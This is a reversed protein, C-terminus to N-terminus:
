KESREKAVQDFMAQYENLIATLYDVELQAEDQQAALASLQDGVRELQREMYTQRRSLETLENLNARSGLYELRAETAKLQVSRADIEGLLAQSAKARTSELESRNMAMKQMAELMRMEAERLEGQAVNGRETLVKMRQMEEELKKVIAEQYKLVEERRARENSDQGAAERKELEAKYAELEARLNQKQEDLRSLQVQMDRLDDIKTVGKSVLVQDLEDLEARLMLEQDSLRKIGKSITDQRITLKKLEWGLPDILRSKVTSQDRIAPIDSPTMVGFDVANKELERVLQNLREFQARATAPWLMVVLMASLLLRM